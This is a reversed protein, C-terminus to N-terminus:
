QTLIIFSSINGGAIAIPRKNQQKHRSNETVASMRLVVEGVTLFVMISFFMETEAAAAATYNTHRGGGSFASALTDGSNILTACMCVTINEM